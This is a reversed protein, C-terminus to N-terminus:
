RACRQDRVHLSARNPSPVPRGASPAHGDVDGATTGSLREADIGSGAVLAVAQLRTHVGLKLLVNQVHTRATSQEVGLSRAIETTDEGGVLLWLVQRERATLRGIVRRLRDQQESRVRPRPLPPTPVARGAVVRALADLIAVVPQDKRLFAAAGAASAAALDRTDMSASLIVVPCDPQRERLTVLTDIGDGDPFRLDLLVVEPQHEGVAALARVPSHAVVVEHGHRALAAALPEIFLRHDDCLVLRM